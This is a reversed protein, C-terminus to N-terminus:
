DLVGAQDLALYWMNAMEIYGQGNPHLNDAYLHTNDRFFTYFDPPTVLLSRLAVVEDIAENYDRILENRAANEPDSFPTCDNCPGLAIPIKGIAPIKGANQLIIVFQTLMDKFSGNYGSDGPLLNKGSPPPLSSGVDNIGFLLLWIESDPYRSLTASVRDLGDTLTSGGIGENYVVSPEPTNSNLLDGLIPTYGWSINRGDSSADDSGLDDQQGRSVSDGMGVLQRGQAGVQVNEDSAEANALPTGGSDLIEASIVHDGKSVGTFQGSFPATADIFSQESPTGKDLYFKVSAGSPLGRTLASVPILGGILVTHAEPKAIFVRPASVGSNDLIFANEFLTMNTAFLGISGQSIDSDEVAFLPNGNVWAFIKSGYVDVKLHLWNTFDFLGRGDFALTSRMGASIKELRSYGQKRSIILRYYNNEDQRRFILGVSNSSSTTTPNALPHVLVQAEYDSLVAGSNYLAYSGIAYDESFGGVANNQRMRGSEPFWNSSKSTQDIFSWKGLDGSDFNEVIPFSPAPPPADSSIGVEDFYIQTTEKSSTEKNLFGGLSVEHNGAALPIEFAVATWGSDQNNSTGCFQQLYEEGSLGYLQGNVAFLVEACEDPEFNLTFIHRFQFSITVTDAQSLEFSKSWAGSMGDDVTGGQGLAGIEVRLSSGSVAHQSTRDGRARSPNSTGRFVDDTYSFGDTSSDFDHFLDLGPASCSPSASCNEDACDTKGDADNDIGDECSSESGFECSAQGDCNADLCDAAGDADNDIGDSCSLEIGFECSSFGDCNPDLCDSMGNADNDEGDNCSLEAGFECFGIGDCDTDACDADGDADNDIGDGCASEVAPPSADSDLVVNDFYVETTEKSSSKKNLYAGIRLSHNGAALPIDLNFSLWGSDQDPQGTYPVGCFEHVHQETGEGYLTGDISVLVQACEDPEFNFTFIHRFQLSLSINAAQSLNFDRVWAGSMGDDITGSQGLGGVEVLLSSGSVAIDSTRSGSANAPHSTGLFADDLFSFGDTSADFNASFVNTQAASFQPLALLILAALAFKLTQCSLRSFNDSLNNSYWKPWM